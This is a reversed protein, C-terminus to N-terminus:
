KPLFDNTFAKEAEIKKALLGQNAMWDGYGKWVELRQEGWRPAGEAYLPSVFAQSKKILEPNSEPTHKTLISAAEAPKAIAFQYGQSTAAMFRRVLDPNEQILKESTILVPTYYDPLCSTWDKLAVYNLPFGRLEAEVGTWGQFIWAFDVDRQTAVFFDSEGIDVFQVKNVDAGDCKMLVSLVQKEIPSGFGGYRKGEFDKPRTIGKDKPSAFGSSNHQIIAAISVIPVDQARANTVDEQHSVGFDAKGAAVVQEVGSEAPEVIQVDLGQQQYYGQDLAVYLGTHNTNPVWDLMVTVKTPSTTAPMSTPQLTPQAVPSGEKPVMPAGAPQTACGVVLALTLLGAIIIALLKSAM